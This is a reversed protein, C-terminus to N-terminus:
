VPSLLQRGAEIKKYTGRERVARERRQVGLVVAGGVQEETQKEQRREGAQKSEIWRTNNSFKAQHGYIHKNQNKSQLAALRLFM